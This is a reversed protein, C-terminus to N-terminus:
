HCAKDLSARIQSISRDLNDLSDRRSADREDMCAVLVVRYSKFTGLAEASAACNQAVMADRRRDDPTRRTAEQLNALTSSIERNANDVLRKFDDLIMKCPDARAANASFTLGLVVALGAVKCKIAIAVKSVKLTVPVIQRCRLPRMSASFQHLARWAV